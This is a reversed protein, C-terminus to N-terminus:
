DFRPRGYEDVKLRGLIQPAHELAIQELTDIRRPTPGWRLTNVIVSRGSEPVLEPHGQVFRALAHALERGYKKQARSQSQREIKKQQQDLSQMHLHLVGM